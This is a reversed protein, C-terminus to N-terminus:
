REFSFMHRADHPGWVCNQIAIKVFLFLNLVQECLPLDATYTRILAKVDAVHTARQEVTLRRTLAMICAENLSTLAGFRSTHFLCEDEDAVACEGFLYTTTRLRAMSYIEKTKYKGPKDFPTTVRGANFGRAFGICM